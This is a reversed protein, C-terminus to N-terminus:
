AGMRRLEKRFGVFALLGLAGLGALTLSWPSSAPTSTVPPAPPTEYVRFALDWYDLSSWTGSSFSFNGPHTPSSSDGGAVLSGAEAYKVVIVYHQGAVLAVTNDFRFGVWQNTSGITSVDRPASTALAPGTPVSDSGFTGSVAYLYAYANGTSGMWNALYFEASDL